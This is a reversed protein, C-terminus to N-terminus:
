VKFKTMEIPKGTDLLDVSLPLSTDDWGEAAEKSLEQLKADLMKLARARRREAILDKVPLPSNDGHDNTSTTLGGNANSIISGSSTHSITNHGDSNRLHHYTPKRESVELPPFLGILVMLNYFAVTFPIIVIHSAQPFMNVFQFEEQVHSETSTILNMPLLPNEDDYKYYFKLYSWSFIFSIFTFLFDEFLINKTGFILGTILQLFLFLSPLQHFTIRPLLTEHIYGNGHIRRIYMFFSMLIGNFGYLPVLLFEERGSGVFRAFYYISAGMTCSLITFLFYLGFQEINPYGIYKSIWWLLGIDLLLKISNTEYFCATIMNWVYTHTIITNATVLAIITECHDLLYNLSYLIILPIFCYLFLPREQFVNM